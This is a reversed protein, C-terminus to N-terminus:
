ARRRRLGALGLLGSGLLLGTTPVPVASPAYEEPAFFSSGGENWIATDELIVEGNVMFLEGRWTYVFEALDTYNGTVDALFFITAMLTEGSAVPYFEDPRDLNEAGNIDYLLSAESNGEYTYVTDPLEEGNWLNYDDFDMPTGNDRDYDQYQIGQYTLLDTNWEVAAFFTEVNDTSVGNFVVDMTYYSGETLTGATNTLELNYAFGSSPTFVVAAGFLLFSRLTLMTKTVKV